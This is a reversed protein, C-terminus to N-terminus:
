FYDKIKHKELNQKILKEQAELIKAKWKKPFMEEDKNVKIFESFDEAYKQDKITDFLKM